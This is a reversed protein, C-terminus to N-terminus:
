VGNRFLSGVGEAAQEGSRICHPIGVGRYANGALALGSHRAVLSEIREVRAMHGVHYQPMADLWRSVQLVRPAGRISLLEALDGAAIRALGDDGQELLESQCAGGIFVRILVDGAPARGAYKVSSFSASLIKRREILPVVFGFGDLPHAIQDRRYALSVVACGAYTIAALEAALEADLARLMGAAVPATAAVILGDFPGSQVGDSTTLHWGEGDRAIREVPSQLRISGAPLRAAIAGVLSELGGELAMFLGYRVGSDSTTKAGDRSEQRAARILSGHRREMEVFRPLTAQISLKEPDATYIGGVLPQILREYTERGFRRRAFAALSEDDTATRAPIFFEAALRIKGAVSLIPTGLVPLLRRPAMVTFGEPIPELKGRSVVFARRHEERTAILRDGLGVRRCLDIAWPVDTIFNDASHEILFGDQRTTRLIGGLRGSAEFLTVAVSRDLEVLRHAAALGSIGGGVVAVRLTADSVRNEKMRQAISVTM